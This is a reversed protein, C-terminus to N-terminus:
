VVKNHDREAKLKRVRTDALFHEFGAQALKVAEVRILRLLQRIIYASLPM